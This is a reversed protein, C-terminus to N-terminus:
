KGTIRHLPMTPKTSNNFLKIECYLPLLM